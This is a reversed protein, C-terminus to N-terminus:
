VACLSRTKSRSCIGEQVETRWPIWSHSLTPLPSSYSGPILYFSKDQGSVIKADVTVMETLLRKEDDSLVSVM